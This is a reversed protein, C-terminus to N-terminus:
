YIEDYTDIDYLVANVVYSVDADMEDFDYHLDSFPVHFERVASDQYVVTIILNDDDTDFKISDVESRLEAQIDGILTHIYRDKNDDIEIASTVDDPISGGLEQIRNKLAAEFQEPSGHVRNKKM